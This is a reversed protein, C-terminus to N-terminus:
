VHQSSVAYPFIMSDMSGRGNGNNLGIFLAFDDPDDGDALNEIRVFGESITNGPCLLEGGKSHPIADNIGFEARAASAFEGTEDEADIIILEELLPNNESVCAFIVNRCSFINENLDMISTNVAAYSDDDVEGVVVIGDGEDDEYAVGVIDSLTVDGRTNYNFFGFPNDDKEDFPNESLGNTRYEYGSDDIIRLNGILVDAEDFIDGEDISDFNM